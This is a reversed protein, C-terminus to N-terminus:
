VNTRVGQVTTETPTSRWIDLPEGFALIAVVRATANSLGRRRLREYRLFDHIPPAQVASPMPIPM